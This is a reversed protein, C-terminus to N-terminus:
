DGVEAIRRGLVIGDYGYYSLEAVQEVSGIDGTCLTILGMCISAVNSNFGYM